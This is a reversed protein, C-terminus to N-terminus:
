SVAAFSMTPVDRHEGVLSPSSALVSAVAGVVTAPDHASFVPIEIVPVNWTAARAVITASAARATELETAADHVTTTWEALAPEAALARPSRTPVRNVVILAPAHGIDALQAKLRTLDELAGARATTVLVVRTSAPDLMRAAGAIWQSLEPRVDAAFALLALADDIIRAGVSSSLARVIWHKAGGLLRARLGRQPGLTTRALEGLWVIARGDIVDALRRPLALAEIGHRSPAADIVTVEYRPAQRALEALAVLEHMGAFGGCLATVLPSSQIFDRHMPARALLEDILSRAHKGSDTALAALRPESPVARAESLDALGLADALRRAPDITAVLSHHGTRALATALAASITTKGVGGTGLCIWTPPTM